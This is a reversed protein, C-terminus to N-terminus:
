LQSSWWEKAITVLDNNLSQNKELYKVYMNYKEIFVTETMEFELDGCEITVHAISGKLDAENMQSIITFLANYVTVSNQHTDHPLTSELDSYFPSIELITNLTIGHISSMSLVDGQKIQKYIESTPTAASM